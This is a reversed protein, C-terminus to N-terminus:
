AQGAKKRTTRKPPTTQAAQEIAPNAEAYTMPAVEQVEITNMQLAKIEAMAEQLAENRDALQAHLNAKETNLQEITLDTSTGNRRAVFAMYLVLSTLAIVMLLVVWAPIPANINM